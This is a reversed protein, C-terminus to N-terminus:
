EDRTIGQFGCLPFSFGQPVAGPDQQVDKHVLVHMRFQSPEHSFPDGFLKSISQPFMANHERVRFLHLDDDEQAYMRRARINVTLNKLPDVVISSEGRRHEM